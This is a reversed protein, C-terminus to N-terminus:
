KFSQTTMTYSHLTYSYINIAVILASFKLAASGHNAHSYHRMIAYDM